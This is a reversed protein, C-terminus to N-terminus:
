RVMIIKGHSKDLRHVLFLGLLHTVDAGLLVPVELMVDRIVVVAAVDLQHVLGAGLRSALSHEPRCHPLSMHFKKTVDKMVPILGGNLLM